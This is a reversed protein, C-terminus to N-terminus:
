SAAEKPEVTESRLWQIANVFEIAYQELLSLRRETQQSLYGYLILTPIAVILGLETTVLAQSIGSSLKEADGTGYVTILTFTKIMGVVTGLLGLLPAAAAIVKLLPLRREHINRQLLVHAFLLEELLEKSKDKHRLGLAMLERSARKLKSVREEALDGGAQVLAELEAQMRRPTNIALSMLDVLKILATFLAFVGLGIIVYGVIGGREIHEVLTGRAEELRLARGGSVDIMVSGQGTSFVSEHALPDWGPMPYAIPLVAGDVLRAIGAFSGDSSRFYTEPGLYLFTGEALERTTDLQAQGEQIEGGLKQRITALSLNLAESVAESPDRAGLTELQSYLLGMAQAQELQEGPMIAQQLTYLAERALVSAYELNQVLSGRENQLRQRREESNALSTELRILTSQLAISRDELERIREQLPEKEALIRSRAAELEATAVRMREAYQQASGELAEAAGQASLPLPTVLMGLLLAALWGSIHQWTKM